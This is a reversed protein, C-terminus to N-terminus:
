LPLFGILDLVYLIRASNLVVHYFLWSAQNLKKHDKFKAYSM